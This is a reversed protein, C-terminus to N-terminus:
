LVGDFSVELVRSYMALLRIFEMEYEDGVNVVEFILKILEGLGYKYM